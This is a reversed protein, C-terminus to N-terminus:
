HVNLSFILRLTFHPELKVLIAPGAAVWGGSGIVRGEPVSEGAPLPVSFRLAATFFAAASMIPWVRPDRRCM